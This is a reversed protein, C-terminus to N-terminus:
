RTKLVITVGFLVKFHNDLLYLYVHINVVFKDVSIAMWFTVPILLQIQYLCTYVNTYSRYFM